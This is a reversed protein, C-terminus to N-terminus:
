GRVSDLFAKFLRESTEDRLCEPHWQVGLFFIDPAEIGETIRDGSVASIRMGPAIRDVAQHHFSNVAAREGVIGCLRTGVAAFVEHSTEYRESTQIHGPIDLLLTGGLAANMVQMGRCIGLTPIRREYATRVLKFELKDRESDVGRVLTEDYNGLGFLGPEVDGGGSLLLGQFECTSIDADAGVAIPEGGAREIAEIYRPSLTRGRTIAIKPREM